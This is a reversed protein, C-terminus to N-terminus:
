KLPWKQTHFPAAPLGERNRLNPMASEHWGYRAAVPQPVADSHVLLSDGEITGTAPVFTGDAGAIELHTPAKGDSTALGGGAHDFQIRLRGGEAKAERFMPGSHVRDAQGHVRALALLALRKGVDQKNRPHIDGPNGTIDNIVVMGTHPQSLAATQAMWFEPLSEPTLPSGPRASYLFPAIQVFFFPLDPSEWRKRWADVMGTQLATYKAGDSKICNSEGQYWIAGRITFPAVPHVMANYLGGGPSWQEIPTGGVSANIVGVPIDLATKLERAFFYALASDGNTGGTLLDNRTARHWIGTVAAAPAAVGGKKVTFQRVLPDNAAALEEENKDVTQGPSFTWHMNSQGSALWVEGVLVDVLERTEDRGRIVLDRPEKSAALAALNVRWAGAADATAAVKQGAFEVAISEGPSATGWVAVPLDRQLVMGDSFLPSLKVHSKAIAKGALQGDLWPGVKEAWLRGHERLGKGSFHVGQGGRERHDGTLSDSDPGELAAGSEWTGRQALRIDASREDGPVHYSVQAIFWPASSGLDRKASSILTELHARYQDGPLTRTPDAQNADSEGQHWLVARFGERGLPRLRDILNRYLTGTSEYANRGVAVTNRTLTPPNGFRIGGPLWERVSTAGVGVAVIGVPVGFREVMADGFAPVFSGGNGSAGPQPDNAVRWDTGSFASVRGSASSLKEEGHNASNSQGAVVFVEGIGVQEVASEAVPKGGQLVQIEMRYWGGAPAEVEARFAPVRPDIAVPQWAGELGEGTLRVRVSDPAPAEKSAPEIGGALVIRGTKPASRQFVQHNQPSTLMLKAVPAPDTGTAKQQAYLPGGLFLSLAFLFAAPTKM